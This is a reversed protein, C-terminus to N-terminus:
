SHQHVSEPHNFASPSEHIEFTMVGSVGLIQRNESTLAFMDFNM